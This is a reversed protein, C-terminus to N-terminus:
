LRAPLFAAVVDKHNREGIIDDEKSSTDDCELADDDSWVDSPLDSDNMTLHTWPQPVTLNVCSSTMGSFRVNLNRLLINAFLSEKSCM